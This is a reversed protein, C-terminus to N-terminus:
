KSCDYKLPLFIPFERKYNQMQSFFSHFSQYRIGYKKNIQLYFLVFLVKTLLFFYQIIIKIFTTCLIILIVHLKYGLRKKDIKLMTLMNLM